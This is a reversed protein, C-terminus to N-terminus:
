VMLLYIRHESEKIVLGKPKNVRYSTTDDTYSAITVGDLFYIFVCLFIKFIRPGLISGQPIGCFAKKGHIIHM